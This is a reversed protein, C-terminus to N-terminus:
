MYTCCFLVFIFKQLIKQIKKKWYLFYKQEFESLLQTQFFNSLSNLSLTHATRLNRDPQSVRQGTWLVLNWHLMGLFSSWKLCTFCDLKKPVNAQVFTKSSFVLLEIVIPLQEHVFARCDEELGTLYDCLGIV